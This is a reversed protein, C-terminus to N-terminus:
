WVTMTVGLGVVALMGVAIAWHVHRQTAWAFVGCSGWVGGLFWAFCRVVNLVSLTAVCPKQRFTGTLADGRDAKVRCLDGTRDWSRVRNSDTRENM